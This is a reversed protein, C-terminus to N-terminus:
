EAMEDPGADVEAGADDAGMEQGHEQRHHEALWDPLWLIQRVTLPAWARRVLLVVGGPGQRIAALDFAVLRAMSRRVLAQGKRSRLGVCEAVAAVTVPYESSTSVGGALRCGVAFTAPGLLPLWYDTTYPDGPRYGVQEVLEDELLRIVVQDQDKLLRLAASFLGAFM